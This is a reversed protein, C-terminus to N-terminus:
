VVVLGTVTPLDVRYEGLMDVYTADSALNLGIRGVLGLKVAGHLVGASGTGSGTTTLVLWICVPLAVIGVGWHISNGSLINLTESSM